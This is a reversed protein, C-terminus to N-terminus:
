VFSLLVRASLHGVPLSVLEEGLKIGLEDLTCDAASEQSCSGWEEGEDRERSYKPVSFGKNQELASHSDSPQTCGLHCGDCSLTSSM